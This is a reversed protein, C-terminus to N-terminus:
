NFRLVVIEIPLQFKELGTNKYKKSIEQRNRLLKALSVM